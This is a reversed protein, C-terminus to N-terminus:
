KTKLLSKVLTSARRAGFRAARLPQGLRWYLSAKVAHLERELERIRAEAKDSGTRGDRACAVFSVDNVALAAFAASAPGPLREALRALIDLTVRRWGADADPQGAAGDPVSGQKVVSRSLDAIGASGDRLVVPTSIVALKGANLGLAVLAWTWYSLADLPRLPQGLLWNRRVVLVGPDRPQCLAERLDLVYAGWEDMPEGAAQSRILFLDCSPSKRLAARVEVAFGPTLRWNDPLLVVWNERVGELVTWLEDLATVVDRERSPQAVSHSSTFRLGSLRESSRSAGSTWGFEVLACDELKTGRLAAKSLTGARAQEILSLWAGGVRELSFRARAEKQAQSVVRQVELFNDRLASIKADWDEEPAVLFRGDLGLLKAAEVHEPTATVLVPVGLVLAKVMRNANKALNWENREVPILVLDFGSLTADITDRDFEIDGRRTVTVVTEATKIARLDRLGAPTGFWGIRRLDETASRSIEASSIDAPNELVFVHPHYSRAAELLHGSGVTVIDAGNMFAVVEDKLGHGDPGDLLFHDDFDYVTLAGADKFDRLSAFPRIKQCVYVDCSGGENMMVQHGREALFEALKWARLRSSATNDDGFTDFRFTLVRTMRDIRNLKM